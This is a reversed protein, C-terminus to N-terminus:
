SRSEIPEGGLVRALEDARGKVTRGTVKNHYAFQYEGLEQIADVYEWSVGEGVRRLDRKDGLRFSFLHIPESLAFMTVWAPRQMGVVVSIDKSRGQTLLKVMSDELGLSHQLYYAEDIYCTWAGERWIQMMAAAFQEWQREYPPELLYANHARPNMQDVNTIRKWGAWYLGDPKTRFM